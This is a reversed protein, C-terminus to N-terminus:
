ELREIWISSGHNQMFRPFESKMVKGYAETWSYNREFIFPDPYEFPYRVDHIHVLVGPKVRPLLHFLEFHVDSGTKLVHTSDIFLIDNAELDEVLSPSVEQVLKEILTVRNWDGPWLIKKVREPYPEICTLHFNELGAQDASDLFCASSFGSGIEIVRRPRRDHVMMRLTIADGSPYSMAGYYYRNRLSMEETFPTEQIAKLNKLWLQRMAATDIDIGEIPAMRERAVYSRVTEPDVIPSYYHGPRVRVTVATKEKYEGSAKIVSLMEEPTTGNQIDKKWLVIESRKPLRELVALYIANVLSTVHGDDQSQVAMKNMWTGLARSKPLWSAPDVSGLATLPLAVARM